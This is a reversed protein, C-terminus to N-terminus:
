LSPHFYNTWLSRLISSFYAGQYDKESVKIPQGNLGFGKIELSGPISIEIQVDM